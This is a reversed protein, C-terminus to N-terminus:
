KLRAVAMVTSPGPEQVIVVVPETGPAQATLELPAVGPWDALKTWETVINHYTVTKGANEGRAIEVVAEPVYRVLQVEAGGSLPPEAVARIVVQDGRRELTLHVTRTVALHKGILRVVADPTNGEVRDIGGVIMQPTYIMRSKIARAYSKQRETFAAQAFSDEWGIYDWYDVHLALPIVEEHAALEALFEDAPPCSACGQSTYLEVLVPQRVEPSGTGAAEEALAPVALALTAGCLASVFHRM